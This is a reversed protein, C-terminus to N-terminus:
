RNLRPRLFGRFHRSSPSRTDACLGGQQEVVWNSLLKITSCDEGLSHRVDVPRVARLVLRVAADLPSGVIVRSAPFTASTVPALLPIPSDMARRSAESPACTTLALMM